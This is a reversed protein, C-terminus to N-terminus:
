SDGGSRLSANLDRIDDSTADTYGGHFALVGDVNLEALRGLSDVATDMKETFEPDPGALEDDEVRLADAALLLGRDPLYLSAHGDTHGPTDVVRLPGADTRLETGDTIRVDADAPPYGGGGGRPGRDGEVVPADGKAVLVAADTEETLAALCGAHDGDEHTVVVFEVDRLRFEEDDLAAELDDLHGPLATDVLVLGDDTEVGAPHFTVDRGDRQVTVPFAYVGNALRM